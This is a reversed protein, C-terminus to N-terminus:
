IDGSIAGCTARRSDTRWDRRTRLKDALAQAARLGDDTLLGYCRRAHAELYECWAAARLAAGRNVPGPLRDGRWRLLHLILALAPFLKDFKALHQESSRITRRCAHARHLDRSWDIFIAQAEDDFRFHPFKTFDDAPSAGWAVPTSIPWPRSCRSPGTAPRRERRIRDRWEWPRQTPIFWCRFGNCCGMTPWPTRRRSSIGTLKDPQIGGFISLCLNPISIHGRGIRDTDFSQNGNWGELFFAREGERGEREWAAILGVLEDRLVLLGAANERLLEGLKEVTSDNTKYRRM